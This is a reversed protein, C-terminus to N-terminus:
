YILGKGEYEKIKKRLFSSHLTEPRRQLGISESVDDDSRLRHPHSRRTSRRFSGSSNRSSQNGDSQFSSQASHGHSELQNSTQAQVDDSITSISIIKKNDKSKSSDSMNFFQLKLEEATAGHHTHKFSIWLVVCHGCSFPM